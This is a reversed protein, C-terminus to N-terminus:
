IHYKRNGLLHTETAGTIDMDTIDGINGEEIFVSKYNKTKGVMWKGRREFIVVNYSKGICKRNNELTIQSVIETMKRSREKATKTDIRGEMRKADTHPRPSFRTINIVDPRIKKITNVTEEFQEESESPFAVIVDTALTVGPIKKRIDSVADMFDEVTYGRRMKKLIENSGSQLPLHIFGYVRKKLLIGVIEDTRRKLSIPHMMGIRVRFNGDTSCIKDVLSLFSAGSDIGYAATDQATLRIEMCGKGLADRVADVIGGKSYSILNGRARKTICYSCNYRCGDSIPISTRMSVERPLLAKDVPYDKVNKNEIIDSIQHVSNPPLLVADPLTKKAVDPLASAMCGAVIVPKGSEGFIRMRHLMRQETKDIVICTFIVLVDANDIEEVLEHGKEALVGKAISADGQNAACGYTEMYVKMRM